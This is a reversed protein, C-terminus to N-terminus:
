LPRDGARRRNPRGRRPDWRRDCGARGGASDGRRPGTAPGARHGTPHRRGRYQFDAREGRKGGGHRGMSSASHRHTRRGDAAPQPLQRFLFRVRYPESGRRLLAAGGGWQSAADPARDPGRLVSAFDPDFPAQARQPLPIPSGDRLNPVTYAALDANIIPTLPGFGFGEDTPSVSTIVAKRAGPGAYDTSSFYSGVPDIHTEEWDFQYFSELTLTDNPAVSVSAMGVPLLAERLESGPLRLKSVDIPNIANIGNPIFTSEGWNLVHRGLRLDIAADGVEFGATVYADLVDVNSGVREKAAASLATRERKGDQNEFDIFGTTRVFAGFDGFGIDLDTTFKSTNAVIGRDYNLNGDNSNTGALSENRNEVRFTMGHSITTDLNGRFKGDGFEVAKAPLAHLLGGLVVAGAALAVVGNARPPRCRFGLKTCRLRLLSSSHPPLSNANFESMNVM